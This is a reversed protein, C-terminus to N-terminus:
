NGGKNKTMFRETLWKRVPEDYLKLAVWALLITGFFIAVGVYWVQDFTYGNKWVWAYFYYMVPYHTIYLPYSIDGLFKCLRQSKAGEAKGSAALWVVVPFVIMTCFLDYLGNQWPQSGDGIYPVALLAIIIASCIWFAGKINAPKFKRSLLLGMSFSFGVRMLGGFLGMYPIEWATHGMSWGVGIHGVGSINGLACAALGVGSVVVVATLAKNSLRRLWLAYLINAIYEFFLSWSPGNLPFLEGNGRIEYSGGPAAPIMFISLLMALAIAGWGIHTGDWQVCGQLCFSIVGFLVGLIVLPHLRILRRKFFNGLSMKSWRDDYAYGLVFGSLVFFFDVALYGHNIRQDMASTAFGEFVHYWIVVLAAVGRMADLLEYHPKTDAYSAASIPKVSM